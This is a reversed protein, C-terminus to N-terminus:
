SCVMGHLCGTSLYAGHRSSMSSTSICSWVNKVETRYPSSHDAEYGLWEVGLNLSLDKLSVTKHM